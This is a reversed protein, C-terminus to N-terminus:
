SPLAHCPGMGCRLFAKLQNPGACGHRVCNRIEGATVEECRCVLTADGAPVRSARGPRYLADLFTRGRAYGALARLNARLRVEPIVTFYPTQQLGVILSQRVDEDLGPDGSPSAADAVMLLTGEPLRASRSCGAVAPGAAILLALVISTRAPAGPFTRM